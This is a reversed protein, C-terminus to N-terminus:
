CPTLNEIAPTLGDPGGLLIVREASLGQILNRVMVPVCSGRVIFLPAGESGALAAGALADPFRTGLALYVNQTPSKGYAMYNLQFSTMYRDSGGYRTIQPRPSPLYMLSSYFSDSITASQGLLSAKQPALEHILDATDQDVSAAGGDVLIVPVQQHGAISGVSLADPFNVGTALYVERVYTDSFGYRVLARSTAYRDEGAVREISSGPLLSDIEARVADSISAESGVIVVKSPQLRALEDAASAPLADPESLLVPGGLKAAIPAASLADPFKLGNAIFAVDAAEFQASVLAATEYRNAGAIREADLARASEPLPILIDPSETFREIAVDTATAFSQSDSYFASSFLSVEASVAVVRQAWVKYNGAALGQFQFRGGLQTVQEAVKAWESGAENWAYVSVTAGESARVGVSGVLSGGPELSIDVITTDDSEVTVSAAGERFASGPYWSPAVNQSILPSSTDFFVHYDGAPVNDIYYRGLPDTAVQMPWQGFPSLSPRGVPEIRVIARQVPSSEEADLVTGGIGGTEESEAAGATPVATFALASFLVAATAAAITRPFNLVHM